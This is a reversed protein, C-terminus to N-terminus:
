PSEMSILEAHTRDESQRIRKEVEQSYSPAKNYLLTRCLLSRSGDDNGDIERAKDLDFNLIKQYL